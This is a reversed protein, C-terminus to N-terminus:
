FSHMIASLHASRAVVIRGPEFARLGPRNFRPQTKMEFPTMCKRDLELNFTTQSFRM